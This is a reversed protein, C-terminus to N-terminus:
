FIDSRWFHKSDFVSDKLPMFFNQFQRDLIISLKVLCVKAGLGIYFSGLGGRLSVFKAELDLRVLCPDWEFRSIKFISFQFIGPKFFQFVSFSFFQFVSFSFFQFLSIRFVRLIKLISFNFFGPILTVRLDLDGRYITSTFLGKIIM